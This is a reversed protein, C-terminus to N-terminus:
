DGLHNEEYKMGMRTYGSTYLSWDIFGHNYPSWLLCIINGTSSNVLSYINSRDRNLFHAKLTHPDGIIAMIRNNSRAAQLTAM